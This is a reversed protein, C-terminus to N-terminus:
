LAALVWFEQKNSMIMIRYHCYLANYNALSPFDQCLNSVELETHLESVSTIPFLNKIVSDWLIRLQFPCVLIMLDLEQCPVVRFIVGHLKNALRFLLPIPILAM